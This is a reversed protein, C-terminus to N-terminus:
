LGNNKEKIKDTPLRQECCGCVVVQDGGMAILSGLYQEVKTKSKGLFPTQEGVTLIAGLESMRDDQSFETYEEVIRREIRPQISAPIKSDELMTKIKPGAESVPGKWLEQLVGGSLESSFQLAHLFVESFKEMLNNRTEGKAAIRGRKEALPVAVYFPTKEPNMPTFELLTEVYSSSKTDLSIKMRVGCRLSFGRSTWGAPSINSVVDVQIQDYQTLWSTVEFEEVDGLEEHNLFLISFLISEVPLLPHDTRYFKEVQGDHFQVIVESSDCEGLFYDFTNMKLSDSAKDLSKVSFGLHVALQKWSVDDLEVVTDELQLSHASMMKAGAMGFVQFQQKQSYDRVRDLFRM